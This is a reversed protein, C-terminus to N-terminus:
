QTCPGKPHGERFALSENRVRVTVLIGRFFLRANTKHPCTATESFQSDKNSESRVQGVIAASPHPAASRERDGGHFFSM